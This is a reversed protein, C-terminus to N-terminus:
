LWGGVERNFLFNVYRDQLNLDGFMPDSSYRGVLSLKKPGPLRARHLSEGPKVCYMKLETVTRPVDKVIAKRHNAHVDQKFELCLWRLKPLHAFFKRRELSRRVLARPTSLKLSLCELSPTCWGYVDSDLYCPDFYQEPTLTLTVLHRLTGSVLAHGLAEHCFGVVDGQVYLCQLKDWKRLVLSSFYDDHVLSM